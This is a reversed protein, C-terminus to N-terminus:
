CIVNCFNVNKKKQFPLKEEIKEKIKQSQANKRTRQNRVPLFLFHRFSRLTKLRKIKKMRFFLLQRLGVGVKRKIIKKKVILPIFFDKRKFFRNYKFHSGLNYGLKALIGISSKKSVGFCANLALDIRKKDSILSDFIYM